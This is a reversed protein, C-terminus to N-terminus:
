QLEEGPKLGRVIKECLVHSELADRASVVLGNRVTQLFYETMAQFGREVFTTSWSPPAFHEMTGQSRTVQRVDVVRWKVGEHLTELIEENVGGDRHMVGIGLSDKTEMQVAVYGLTGANDVAGRVRFQEVPADLLFRLTDVVHIFDDYVVQRAVSRSNVRHKQMTVVQPPTGARISQYAPAFRRNFGVMLSVGAREALDVLAQAQVFSDSLPKDVFTPVGHRLLESVVAFHAPTATHVFAAEIGHQLLEDLTHARATIRYADGIEDLVDSNRTMLCPEIERNAALVPLYAKRAIGGLGIVGVKM